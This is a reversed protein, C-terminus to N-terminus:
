LLRLRASPGATAQAGLLEAQGCTGVKRAQGFKSHTSFAVEKVQSQDLWAM